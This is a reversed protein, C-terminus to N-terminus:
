KVPEKNFTFRCVKHHRLSGKEIDRASPPPDDFRLENEIAKAAAATMEHHGRRRSVHGDPKVWFRFRRRQAPPWDGYVAAVEGRQEPTLKDFDVFM